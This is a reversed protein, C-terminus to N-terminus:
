PQESKMSRAALAVTSRAAGTVRATETWSMGRELCSRISAQKQEDVKRGTYKGEMKAREIGQQTRRKRDMYDKRAFAALVDLLMKHISEQIRRQTEDTASDAFQHSTPLDLAVVRISRSTLEGRLREWDQENLRTLRDVQEVLLVDGPQCDRILRFLEPRDLRTGSENEIYWSAIRLKKDAAFRQLDDRAREADQDDTSARLYARVFM